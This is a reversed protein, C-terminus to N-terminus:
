LYFRGPVYQEGSLRYAIVLGSGATQAGAAAQRAPLVTRREEEMRFRQLRITAATLSGEAFVFTAFDSDGLVPVGGFMQMFVLTTRGNEQHVTYLSAHTETEGVRMAADLISRACDIQADLAARGSAEGADYARVTSDTGAAYQLLGTMHVRLTSVDDVFVRVRDNQEAYYNAYPTFGFSDLLDEMGVSNQTGFLEADGARLLPLTVMEREFLLTEPKVEYSDGSFSCPLGRFNEQAVHLTAEEARASAAYLAGDWTRVFLQESGAAYILSEVLLNSDSEWAGGMWGAIVGFPIAGHYRLLACDGAALAAILESEEARSLGDGRLVEAWLPRVIELSADLDTLSYQVGYLQGDATLALQAPEAAAMGSSRLEYGVAGGAVQDYARRLLSDAPMRDLDMGTLWNAACLVGLLLVLVILSVNKVTNRMSDGAPTM